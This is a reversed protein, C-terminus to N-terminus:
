LFTGYFELEGLELYMNSNSNNGTVLIRLYRYFTTNAVAWSGWSNASTAITTDNNHVKLDTWDTNNNSGQLKWNRPTNFGRNGNRISYYNVALAHNAGLDIQAFGNVAANNYINSPQQDVLSQISGSIIADMSIAVKSATHPNTWAQTGYNTGAYYCVGNADGNSAYTLQVGGSVAVTKRAIGGFSGRFRAPKGNIPLKYSM